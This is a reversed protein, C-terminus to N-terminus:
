DNANGLTDGKGPCYYYGNTRLENIVANYYDLVEAYNSLSEESAPIQDSAV